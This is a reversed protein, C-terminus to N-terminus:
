SNQSERTVRWSATSGMFPIFYKPRVLALLLKLEEEAGHGSVHVHKTAETVVDVGRRAVHNIVRGIAKENGPIARASIVVRDAALKVYRHDNIAIRSLAANPEGQSGTRSLARGALITPCM